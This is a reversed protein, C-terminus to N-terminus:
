TPSTRPTARAQRSRIRSGDTATRVARYQNIYGSAPDNFAAFSDCVVQGGGPRAFLLHASYSLSGSSTAADGGNKEVPSVQEYARCDPLGESNQQARM